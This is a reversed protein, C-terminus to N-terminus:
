RIRCCPLCDDYQTWLEVFWCQHHVFHVPSSCGGVTLGALGAELRVGTSSPEAQSPLSQAVPAVPLRSSMDNARCCRRIDSIVVLIQCILLTKVVAMAPELIYTLYDDRHSFETSIPSVLDVVFRSAAM